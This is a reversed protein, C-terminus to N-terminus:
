HSKVLVGLLHTRLMPIASLLTTLAWSKPALFRALPPALTVSRVKLQLEPFLRALESRDVKRVHPNRPNNVAFDYWLLAGSPKMVRTIEAAILRRIKMNLVSTFVTSVVILQFTEDDWPLKTADGVRLDAMPLINQAQTARKSDLEIGHLDTERVGWSLLDALWGLSGFGVELCQDGVRPFLGKHHLMLAALRKREACMLMEAPQWPAYLDSRVERQRRQYEAQIRANEAGIVDETSFM